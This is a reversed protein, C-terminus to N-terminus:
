EEETKTWKRSMKAIAIIFEKFSAEDKYFCIWITQLMQEFLFLFYRIKMDKSKCKIRAEDQVRFQTEIRWRKKYTSLIDSLVVKEINTAFIWDYNKKNRPDYIEKLFALYKEGKYRSMNKNITYDHVVITKGQELGELFQKYEKRKPVFILFPYNMKTLEYMLDNDYFGRDFLILKIKGVYDHVVITKGQELGELFQKYEKRKPVFILFPYNMKTLEYMLDNDYFGRDFLILKIKGVYDKILLLCHSIVSSKCHGLKIPVSILPIKEPIEDSIISCTLFKFKGTVGDKGNWGHIEFGQVKGYFDEDTYDFALIVEKEKLKSKTSVRKIYNLYAQEMMSILSEKCRLYFIDAKNSLTEVYSNYAASELLSVVLEFGTIKNREYSLGLANNIFHKLEGLSFMLKTENM